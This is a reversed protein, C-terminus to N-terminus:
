KEVIIIDQFGEANKRGSWGGFHIDDVIKLQYKQLQARIYEESFAICAEPNKLNSTYIDREINKFPVINKKTKLKVQEYSFENMIYYTILARGGPKLLRHIEELYNEHVNKFTHTFVSTLFIFDFKNEPFKFKYTSSISGDPNYWDNKIDIVSFEFNDIEAYKEKLWNIPRLNVDLGHYNGNSNLYKVLAFAMRGIGCGIDLIESEENIKGFKIFRELFRNGVVEFEGGGIRYKKLLAPPPILSSFNNVTNSM